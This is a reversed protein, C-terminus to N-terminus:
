TYYNYNNYSYLLKYLNRRTQYRINIIVSLLFFLVVLEFVTHKKKCICTYFSKKQLKALAKKKM